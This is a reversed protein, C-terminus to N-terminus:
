ILKSMRVIELYRMQNIGIKEFLEIANNVQNANPIGNCSLFDQVIIVMLEKIKSEVGILDSIIGAKGFNKMRNLTNNKDIGLIITYQNIFQLEAINGTGIAMLFAIISSKQNSTVNEFFKNLQNQETNLSFANM